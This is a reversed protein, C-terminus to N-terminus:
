PEIEIHLVFIAAFRQPTKLARCRRLQNTTANGATRKFRAVGQGQHVARQGIATVTARHTPDLEGVISENNGAVATAARVSFGHGAPLTPQFLAKTGVLFGLLGAAGSRM